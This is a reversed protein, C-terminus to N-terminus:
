EVVPYQKINVGFFISFYTFFFRHINIGKTIAIKLTNYVGQNNISTIRTKIFTIFFYKEDCDLSYSIKNIFIWFCLVYVNYSCYNFVSKLFFKGAFVFFRNIIYISSLVYPTFLYSHGSKLSFLFHQVLDLLLRMYPNDWNALAEDFKKAILYFVADM